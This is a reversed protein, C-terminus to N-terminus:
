MLRHVRVEFLNLSQEINWLCQGQILTLFYKRPRCKISFLTLRCIRWATSLLPARKRQSLVKDQSISLYGFDIFEHFSLMWHNVCNEAKAWDIHKLWTKRNLDGNSVRTRWTKQKRQWTQQIQSIQEVRHHAQKNDIRITSRTIRNM